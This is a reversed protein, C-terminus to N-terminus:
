HGSTVFINPAIPTAVVLFVGQQALERQKKISLQPAVTGQTWREPDFDSPTSETDEEASPVEVAATGEEPLGQTEEAASPVSVTETRTHLQAEVQASAMQGEQVMGQMIVSAESVAAQELETRVEQRAEALLEPITEAIASQM